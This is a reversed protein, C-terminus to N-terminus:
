NVEAVELGYTRCTCIFGVASLADLLPPEAISQHLNTSSAFIGKLAIHNLSPFVVASLTQVGAV